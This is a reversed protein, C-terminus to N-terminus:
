AEGKAPIRVPASELHLIADEADEKTAFHGHQDRYRKIGDSWCKRLLWRPEADVLVPCLEWYPDDSM